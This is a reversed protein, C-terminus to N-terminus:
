IENMYFPYNNKARALSGLIDLLPAVNKAGNPDPLWDIYFRKM